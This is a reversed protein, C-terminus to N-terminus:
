GSGTLWLVSATANVFEVISRGAGPGAVRSGRQLWGRMELSLGLAPPMPQYVWAVTLVM